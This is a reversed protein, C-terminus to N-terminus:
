FICINGNWFTANEKHGRTKEWNLGVSGSCLRKVKLEKNTCNLLFQVRISSNLKTIYKLQKNIKVLQFTVNSFADESKTSIQSHNDSAQVPSLCSGGVLLFVCLCLAFIVVSPYGTACNKRKNNNNIYVKNKVMVVQFSVLPVHACNLFSSM